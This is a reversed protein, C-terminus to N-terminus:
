GRVQALAHSPGDCTGSANWSKQAMCMQGCSQYRLRSVGTPAISDALQQARVLSMPAGVIARELVRRVNGDVPAVPDNYAFAPVARAIYPSIGKMALLDDKSRPVRGGFRTVITRACDHLTRARRNYGLGIWLRLVDALDADACLEVTPLSRVFHDFYPAV